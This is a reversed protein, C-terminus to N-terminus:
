GPLSFFNIANEYLISSMKNESISRLDSLFRFTHEIYSPENRKGRKPKPALYPCDTELHIKNTPLIKFISRTEEARPFTLVGGISFHFGMDLAKRAINIDGSFCHLLMKDPKKLDKICDFFDDFAERVHLIVPVNKEVALNWQAIFAEIQTQKPSFDYHYDLGIEGVGLVKPHQLLKKLETISNENFTSSDHPHIGVLAYCSGYKEALKIAELSTEICTGANIIVAVNSEAAREIISDLEGEFKEDQLHSHTDILTYKHIM